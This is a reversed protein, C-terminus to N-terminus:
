DLENIQTNEEVSLGSLPNIQVSKISVDSSMNQFEVRKNNDSDGVM